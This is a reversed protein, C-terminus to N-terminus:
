PSAEVVEVGIWTYDGALVSTGGTGRNHWTFMSLQDGQSVPIVAGPVPFRRGTAMEMANHSLGKKSAGNVDLSGQRIGAGDNIYELHGRFRVKTVGAPITIIGPTAINWLNDTNYEAAQWPIQTTTQNSVFFNSTRYLLCGRFPVSSPVITPNTNVYTKLISAPIKFSVGGVEIEVLDTDVLASGYQPLDAIRKNPM